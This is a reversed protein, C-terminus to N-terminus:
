GAGEKEVLAFQKRFSEVDMLPKTRHIARHCNACLVALDELKTAVPEVAEALPRRHHIECIDGQLGPYKDKASVGCAECRVCGDMEKAAERKAKALAPDRERRLHFFMRPEGEIAALEPDPAIPPVVSTKARYAWAGHVKQRESFFEKWRSKGVSIQQSFWAVMNAATGRDDTWDNIARAKAVASAGEVDALLADVIADHTVFGSSDCPTEAIIRAILVSVDDIHFSAAM